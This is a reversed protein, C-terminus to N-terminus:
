SQLYRLLGMESFGQKYAHAVFRVVQEDPLLVRETPIPAPNPVKVPKEAPSPLIPEIPGNTPPPPLTESPPPFYPVDVSTGNLDRTTQLSWQWIDQVSTKWDKVSVKGALVRCISGFIFFVERDRAGV